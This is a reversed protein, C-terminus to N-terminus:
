FIKDKIFSSVNSYWEREAREQIKLKQKWSVRFRIVQDQWSQFDQEKKILNELDLIIDVIDEKLFEQDINAGACVLWSSSDDSWKKISYVYKKSGISIYNKM